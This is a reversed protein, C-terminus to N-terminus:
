SSACIAFEAFGTMLLLAELLLFGGVAGLALRRPVTRDKPRQRRDSRPVSLITGIGAFSIAFGLAAVVGGTRRAFTPAQREPEHCRNKAFGALHVVGAALMLAGVATLGRGWLLRRKYDVPYPPREDDM